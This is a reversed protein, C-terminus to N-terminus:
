FIDKIPISNPASLKETKLINFIGSWQTKAWRAEVPFPFAEEVMLMSPQTGTTPLLSPKPKTAKTVNLINYAKM